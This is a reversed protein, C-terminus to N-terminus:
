PEDSSHQANWHNAAQIQDKKEASFAPIFLAKTPRGPHLDEMLARYQGYGVDPPVGRM